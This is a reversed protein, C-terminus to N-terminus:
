RNASELFIEDREPRHHARPSRAIFECYSVSSIWANPINYLRARRRNTMLNSILAYRKIEVLQGPQSSLVSVPSVLQGAPVNEGEMRRWGRM